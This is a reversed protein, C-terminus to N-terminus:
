RSEYVYLPKCNKEEITKVLQLTDNTIPTGFSVFWERPKLPSKSLLFQQYIDLEKQKTPPFYDRQKPQGNDRINAQKEQLFQIHRPPQQLQAQALAEELQFTKGKEVLVPNILKSLFPIQKGTRFVIASGIISVLLMFTLALSVKVPINFPPTIQRLILYPVLFIFISAKTPAGSGVALPFSIAVILLGALSWKKEIVLNLALLFGLLLIVPLDFTYAIPLYILICILLVIQQYRPKQFLTLLCLLLTFLQIVFHAEANRATGLLNLPNIVSLIPFPLLINVLIFLSLSIAVLLLFHKTTINEKEAFLGMLFAAYFLAIFPHFLTLAFSIVFWKKWHKLVNEDARLLLAVVLLIPSYFIGHLNFIFYFVSIYLFGILFYFVRAYTSKSEGLLPIILIFSYCLLVFNVLQILMSNNGSIHYLCWTLVQALPRFNRISPIPNKIIEFFSNQELYTIWTYSENRNAFPFALLFWFGVGLIPLFILLRDKKQTLM